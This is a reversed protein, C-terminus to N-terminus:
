EYISHLNQKDLLNGFQQLELWVEDFLEHPLCGYMRSLQFAQLLSPLVRGNELRSLATTDSYGLVRAVKKRSFGSRRRYSKLKNPIRGREM